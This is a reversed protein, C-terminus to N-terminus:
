VALHLVDNLTQATPVRKSWRPLTDADGTDIKLRKEDPLEGFRKTLQRILIKAEGRQMGQEIFREAFGSM